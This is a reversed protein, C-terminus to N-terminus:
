DKKNDSEEQVDFSCGKAWPSGVDCRGHHYEKKVAGDDMEDSMRLKMRGTDSEAFNDLMKVVNDIDEENIQPEPKKNLDLNIDFDIDYEFDM